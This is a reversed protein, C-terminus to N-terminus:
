VTLQQLRKVVHDLGLRARNLQLQYSNILTQYHDILHARYPGSQLRDTTRQLLSEVRGIMLEHSRISSQYLTARQKNWRVLEDDVSLNGPEPEHLATQWQQEM